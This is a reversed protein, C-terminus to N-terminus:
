LIRAKFVSFVIGGITKALTIEIFTWCYQDLRGM